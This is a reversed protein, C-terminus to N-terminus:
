NEQNLDDIDTIKLLIWLILKFSLPGELMSLVALPFLEWALNRGADDFFDVVVPILDGSDFGDFFVTFKASCTADFSYVRSVISYYFSPM